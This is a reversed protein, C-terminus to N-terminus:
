CFYYRMIVGSFIQEPFHQSSRLYLNASSDRKIVATLECRAVNKFLSLVLCIKRYMESSMESCSNKLFGRSAEKLEYVCLCSDSEFRPSVSKKMWGPHCWKFRVIPNFWYVDCVLYIWQLVNGKKSFFFAKM